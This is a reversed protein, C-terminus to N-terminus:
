AYLSSYDSLRKQLLTLIDQPDMDKAMDVYITVPPLNIGLNHKMLRRKMVNFKSLFKDINKPVVAIARKDNISIILFEKIDEYSIFGVGGPSSDDIIGDYTITILKKIQRAKALSLIFWILFVVTSMLGPVWYSLRHVMFGFMTITCAAILLLSNVLVILFAKYNMEEIIIEGM